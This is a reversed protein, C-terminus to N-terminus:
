LLLGHLQRGISWAIVFGEVGGRQGGELTGRVGPLGDRGHPLLLRKTTPHAAQHRAATSLSAITYIAWRLPTVTAADAAARRKTSPM